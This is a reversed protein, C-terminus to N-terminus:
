SEDHQLQDLLRCAFIREMPSKLRCRFHQGRDNQSPAQAGCPATDRDGITRFTTCNTGTQVDLVMTLPDRASSRRSGRIATRRRPRRNRQASDGPRRHTHGCFSVSLRRVDVASRRVPRALSALTTRGAEASSQARQAGAGRGRRRGVSL